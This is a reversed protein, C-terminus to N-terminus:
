ISNKINNAIAKGLLPPVANGIQTCISTKSGHFVFIDPFSQLRAAERPTIARNLFPHSNKGNSPTDFRTVITPSLEKKILRGWTEGFTSTIKENLYEKGKEPPIRKLRDIAIKKHKTAIHNFLKKSGKRMQKQYSSKPKFRYDSKVSGEGSELYALDSIADWVTNKIKKNSTPLEIKQKLSSIFFARRRKQPVGFDSADLIGYSVNYGLGELEKIIKNKFFGGHDTLINPVNEMVVYEPKFFNVYKLYAKFLFNREDEMGGRQGKLSFGQCPPGGIIVDVGGIKNKVDVPSIKRIDGIFLDADKHNLKMSGAIEKDYEIAGIINFDGCMEFGYSFGGVGSFLDLVKLSKKTTDM